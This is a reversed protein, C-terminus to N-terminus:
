LKMRTKPQLMIMDINVLKQGKRLQGLPLFFLKMWGSLDCEPKVDWLGCGESVAAFATHIFFTSAVFISFLLISSLYVKKRFQPSDFSLKTINTKTFRLM